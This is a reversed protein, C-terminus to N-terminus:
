NFLASMKKEVTPTNPGYLPSSPCYIPSDTGGSVPSSQVYAPSPCYSSASPSWKPSSPCPSFEGTTPSVSFVSMQPSGLTSQNEGYNEVVSGVMGIGTAYEEETTTYEMANALKKEDLYLETDAATGIPATQGTIICETVGNLPDISGNLAARALATTATEFSAQSLVSTKSKLGYRNMAQLTGTHTMSDVLLMVHRPNVYTGDYELVKNLEKILVTRAAEIGLTAFVDVPNNCYFTPPIVAFLDSRLRNNEECGGMQLSLMTRVLSEANNPDVSELQVMISPHEPDTQHTVAVRSSREVNLGKSALRLVDECEPCKPDLKILVYWNSNLRPVDFVEFYRNVWREVDYLYLLSSHLTYDELTRLELNHSDGGPWSILSKKPNKTCSFLENLRPIGLTVKDNAVGALHFTNLTLQVAPESICQAALVGVSEGPQVCRRERTELMHCCLWTLWETSIEMAADYHLYTLCIWGLLPNPPAESIENICPEVISWHLAPTRVTWQNRSLKKAKDFLFVFDISSGILTTFDIYADLAARMAKLASYDALPM